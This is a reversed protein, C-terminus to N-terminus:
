RFGYIWGISGALACNYMAPTIKIFHAQYGTIHGKIIAILHHLYGAGNQEEDIGMDRM